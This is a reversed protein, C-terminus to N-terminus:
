QQLGNEAVPLAIIVTLGGGPTDDLELRGHMAQVFGQAISMGLGVGDASRDDGLQQFPAMVKSRLHKPIGPGRDITCVHVEHGVVGVTLRVASDGGHRLANTVVNHLSRELLASDGYAGPLGDPVEVEVRDAPAGISGLTAAITEALDVTQINVALAGIQLRSADLLNGVLRNLRDAEEDVTVLADHVQEPRWQVDADLLGSVMAKISALPTRLDHSVARLLATRMADIQALAEAEAAERGLQSREIAVALQDALARVVRQDDGSLPRGYLDLRYSFEPGLSDGVSITSVPEGSLPETSTDYGHHQRDDPTLRVRDLAFTVRIQEILRPLAEPDAALTAASRALATAEVRARQAEHARRAATDVLSGVTIAVGVFVALSVIHEPEAITMTYYPEVFFWNVLLSAVVAAVAAVVMGGIAAVILVLTLFLM